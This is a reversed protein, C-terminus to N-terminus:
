GKVDQTSAPQWFHLIGDANGSILTDAHLWVIAGGVEDENQPQIQTRLGKHLDWVCLTRDGSSSAFTQGDPAIALEVIAATHQEFIHIPQGEATSWVQIQGSQDGTVLFEGNPTLAIATVGMDQHGFRRLLERTDLHHVLITGTMDASYLLHGDPSLAIATVPAEHSAITLCHNGIALDWRKVTGDPSATVLIRSNPAFAIASISAGHGNLPRILNGSQLHWLKVVQDDGGSALLRKDPSLAIARVAGEHAKFSSFRLGKAVNWLEIQQEATAVALLKRDVSLEMKTITEAQETLARALHWTELAAPSPTPTPPTTTSPADAPEEAFPNEVPPPAEYQREIELAKAKRLDAEAGLELGMVSYVFGRHRYADVYKPDLRIARGFYEIAEEYRGAKVAEAGWQYAMEATVPRRTIKPRAPSRRATQTSSPASRSAGPSQTATSGESPSASPKGPPAHTQLHQRLFEYAHNIAKIKEEAQQKLGPDHTFRDPHWTKALTRYARKVEELSADPQLGLTEYHHRAISMTLRIRLPCSRDCDLDEAIVSESM